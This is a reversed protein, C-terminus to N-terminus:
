KETLIGHDEKCNSVTTWFQKLIISDNLFHSASHHHHTGRSGLLTNIALNSLRKLPCNNAQHKSRM